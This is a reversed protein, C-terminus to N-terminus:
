SYRDFGGESGITQGTIWAAEKSHLFHALRAADEPTGWRGSPFRAAVAEYAAGEAYGTDTPGPNICNVRVGQKAFVVAMQECLGRIAEKSAAYAIESTMPGLYQGSTFLTVAGGKKPAVKAFAQMMLMSARVNVQFHRDIHEATWEGMPAHTSYAHNLILGSLGGLAKAAEEVVREPEGAAMLDSPAIYVANQRAEVAADSDKYQMERDYDGYGHAACSAGAEMFRRLLAQGIGSPRSVGTILVKEGTLDM